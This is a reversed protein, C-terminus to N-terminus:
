KNLDNKVIMPILEGKTTDFDGSFKFFYKLRYQNSKHNESVFVYVWFRDTSFDILTEEMFTRLEAESKYPGMLGEKLINIVESLPIENKNFYTEPFGGQLGWAEINFTFYNDDVKTNPVRFADTVLTKDIFIYQSESKLPNKDCNNYILPISGIIIGELSKKIFERRNM